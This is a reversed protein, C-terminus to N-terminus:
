ITPLPANPYLDVEESDTDVIYDGYEDFVVITGGKVSEMEVKSLPCKILQKM